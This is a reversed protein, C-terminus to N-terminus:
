FKYISFKTVSQPYLFQWACGSFDYALLVEHQANGSCTMRLVGEISRRELFTDDVLFLTVNTQYRDIRARIMQFLEDKSNPTIWDEDEYDDFSDDVTENSTILSLQSKFDRKSLKKFNLFGLELFHVMELGVSPLVEEIECSLFLKDSAGIIKWISILNVAFDDSIFNPHFQARVSTIEDALLCILIFHIVQDFNIVKRFM